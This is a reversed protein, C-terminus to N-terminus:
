MSQEPAPPAILPALTVTREPIGQDENWAQYWLGDGAIRDLMQNMADRLATTCSGARILWINHGDVEVSVVHRDRPLTTGPTFEWRSVAVGLDETPEQMRGEHTWRQRWLGYGVMHRVIWNLQWVLPERVHLPHFYTYAVGGAGEEVHILQGPPIRGFFDLHYVASPPVPTQEDPM